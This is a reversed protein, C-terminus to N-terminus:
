GIRKGTKEKVVSGGPLKRWVFAMFRSEKDVAVIQFLVYFSNGRDDRVRELYVHGEFANAQGSAVGPHDISIKSPDPDKAFDVKGLDVVLNQQGVVMNFQFTNPKGGNHFLIQVDSGHKAKDATEYIFSYASKKYDGQCYFHRSHLVVLPYKAALAKLKADEQMSSRIQKDWQKILREIPDEDDGRVPAVLGLLLVAFAAIRRPSANRATM